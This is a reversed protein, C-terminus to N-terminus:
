VPKKLAFAAFVGTLLGFVGSAIIITQRNESPINPNQLAAIIQPSALLVGALVGKLVTGWFTGGVEIALDFDLSRPQAGSADHRIVVISGREATTLRATKLRTRKLDYRSDVILSSGSVITALNPPANISLTVNSPTKKPHFHYIRIEYETNPELGYMRGQVKVSDEKGVEHLDTM